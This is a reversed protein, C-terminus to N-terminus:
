AKGDWQRALDALRGEANIEWRQKAVALSLTGIEGNNLSQIRLERGEKGLVVHANSSGNLRM